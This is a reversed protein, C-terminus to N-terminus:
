PRNVEPYEKLERERTLDTVEFEGVPITTVVVLFEAPMRKRWGGWDVDAWSGDKAIRKVIGVRAGPPDNKCRVWDTQKVAYAGGETEAM